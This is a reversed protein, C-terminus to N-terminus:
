HVLQIKTQRFDLVIFLTNGDGIGYEYLYKDQLIKGCYVIQVYHSPVQLYLSIRTKLELISVTHYNYMKMSQGTLSKLIIYSTNFFSCGSHTIKTRKTTDFLSPPLVDECFMVEDRTRKGLTM